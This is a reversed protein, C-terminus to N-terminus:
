TVSNFSLNLFSLAKCFRLVPSFVAIKNDRMDLNSLGELEQFGDSIEAIKNGSAVLSQLEKLSFVQSPISRLGNQALNMLKLHELAQLADFAEIHNISMDLQHLSDKHELLKEPLTTIGQMSLSIATLGGKGSKEAIYKNVKGIAIQAARLKEEDPVNTQDQKSGNGGM